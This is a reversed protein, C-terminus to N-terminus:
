AQAHLPHLRAEHDERLEGGHRQEAPQMGPNDAAAFWDAPCLGPATRRFLDLRREAMVGAFGAARKRPTQEITELMVDRTDGDECRFEFEDSCWNTNSTDMALRGEHRRALVLQKRRRELLLGHDRM